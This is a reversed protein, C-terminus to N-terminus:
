LNLLLEITKYKFYMDYKAESAKAQQEYLQDKALILELSTIYGLKHKEEFANYSLEGQQLSETQLLYQQKASIFDNLLQQTNKVIENEAEETALNANTLNIKGKEVAARGQYKNFLPIDLMLGVTKGFNNNLQTNLPIHSGNIDRDDLNYNSFINGTVSVNPLLNGRATKLDMAAAKANYMSALLAPHDRLVKEMVESVNFEKRVITNIEGSDIEKVDFPQNYQLGILYKLDNVATLSDNQAKVIDAQESKYRTSITYYDSKSLKGVNIKEQVVDLEHETRLNNNKLTALQEKNYMVKAYAISISSFTELETKKYTNEGAQIKYLSAKIANLANFGSFINLQMSVNVDGGSFNQRVFNNTVPDINKGFSMYHGASAYLSPLLNYTATKKDIYSNQIDNRTKRISINNKQAAAFCDELSYHHQAIGKICFLSVSILLILFKM